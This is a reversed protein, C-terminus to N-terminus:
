LMVLANRLQGASAGAIHAPPPESACRFAGRSDPRNSLDFDLGTAVLTIRVEDELTPDVTVGFFVEAEPDVFRHAHEAARQIRSLSLRPDVVFSLLLRSAGEIGDESLLPSEMASMVADLARDKGAGEGLGMVARGGAAFVRRLDAFDLNILGPRAVLDCIGTVADGLVQDSRHFADVLTTDANAEALLLDNPLVLLTDVVDRIATLGDKAIRGRRGGEFSFPTTVVGLTLAGQQKAVHAIVPAAGTGTGGGMGAAVFVLDADAVANAIEALTEEAAAFGASPKGGAGRGRASWPGLILRQEFPHQELAQSDTNAALLHVTPAVTKRLRAVANSGAGGVGVVQVNGGIPPKM